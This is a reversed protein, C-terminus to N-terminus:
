RRPRPGDSREPRCGCQLWRRGEHLALDVDVLTVPSTAGLERCWKEAVLCGFGVGLDESMVRRQNARVAVGADSLGLRGAPHQDFIGLYRLWGWHRYRDYVDDSVLPRTARALRLM